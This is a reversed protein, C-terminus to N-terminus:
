VVCVECRPIIALLLADAFLRMHLRRPKRVVDVTETPLVTTQDTLHIQARAAAEGLPYIADLILTAPENTDFHSGASAPSASVASAPGDLLSGSDDLCCPLTYDYYDRGCDPCRKM